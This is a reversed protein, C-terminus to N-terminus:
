FPSVQPADWTPGQAADGAAGRAADWAAGRAADWAAGRAAGWAAGWAADWAAGRDELTELKRYEISAEVGFAKLAVTVQATISDKKLDSSPKFWRIARIREIYKDLKEEIEKPLEQNYKNM